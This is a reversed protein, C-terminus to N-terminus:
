ALAATYAIIKISGETATSWDDGATDVDITINTDASVQRMVAMSTVANLATANHLGAFIATGGLNIGDIKAGGVDVAAETKVELGLLVSGASVTIGSQIDAVDKAVNLPAQGGSLLVETAKILSSEVSGTRNYLSIKSLDAM